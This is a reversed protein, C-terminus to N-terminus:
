KRNIYPVGDQDKYIVRATINQAGSNETNTFDIHTNVPNKDDVTNGIMINKTFFYADDFNRMWNTYARVHYNGEQFSLQPLVINGVAVGNIVPLRLSRVISDRNTILDVYVIKSIGSLMHEQVTVYAKFWITDGVVFFLNDFHVYVKETPYTSAYKSVKQIVTTLAVSDSQAFAAVALTFILCTTFLIRKLIM